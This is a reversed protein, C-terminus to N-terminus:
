ASRGFVEDFPRTAQKPILWFPTGSGVGAFHGEHLGKTDNLDDIYSCRFDDWVYIFKATGANHGIWWSFHSRVASKEISFNPTDGRIEAKADVFAWERDRVALIDPAWRAPCSPVQKLAQRLRESVLAQGWPEAVWGADNLLLLVVAEHADSLQKRTQWCNREQARRRAEALLDVRVDLLASM